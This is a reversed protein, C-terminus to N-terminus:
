LLSILPCTCFTQSPHLALYLLILGSHSNLSTNALVVYAGALRPVLEM